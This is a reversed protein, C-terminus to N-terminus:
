ELRIKFKKMSVTILLVVMVFLIAVEKGVAVIGVGKIM